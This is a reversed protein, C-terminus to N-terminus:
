VKRASPIKFVCRAINYFNGSSCKNALEAVLKQQKENHKTSKFTGETASSVLRIFCIQNGIIIDDAFSVAKQHDCTFDSGDFVRVHM